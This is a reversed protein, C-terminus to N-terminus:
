PIGGPGMCLASGSSMHIHFVSQSSPAVAHSSMVNYQQLQCSWMPMCTCCCAHPQVFQLNKARHHVLAPAMYAPRFHCFRDTARTGIAQGRRQCQVDTRLVLGPVLSRCETNAMLPFKRTCMVGNTYPSM